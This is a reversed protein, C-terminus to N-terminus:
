TPLPPPPFAQRSNYLQMWSTCAVFMNSMSFVHTNHNQNENHLNTLLSTALTKIVPHLMIDRIGLAVNGMFWSLISTLQTSYPTGITPILPNAALTATMRTSLRSARDERLRDGNQRRWRLSAADVSSAALLSCDDYAADPQNDEVRRRSKTTLAAGLKLM